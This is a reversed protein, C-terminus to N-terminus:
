EYYDEKYTKYISRSLKLCILFNITMLIKGVIHWDNVYSAIATAGILTTALVILVLQILDILKNNM